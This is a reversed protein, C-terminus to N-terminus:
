KKLFIISEHILNALKMKKLYKFQQSSTVMPRIVDIKEVQFGLKSSILSLFIDTPIVVNGYASNSVIIVTHTNYKTVYYLKEIIKEMDYFYGAIMNIIKKNWLKEIDIKEILENIEKEIKSPVEFIKVRDGSLHSRISLNRYFKLDPYDIIFDGMWLEIKYIECYDFCNLYPPSFIICDISQKQLYKELNVSSDLFVKANPLEKNFKDIYKKTQSELDKIIIDLKTLYFDIVISYKNNSYSLITKNNSILKSVRKRKLGNGAKRYNSVKELISHLNFYLLDKVIEDEDLNLIFEKIMLIDKKIREDFLKDSISLKPMDISPKFSLNKIKNRYFKIKKIVNISYFRTKVKSIFHSFPNTEFGIASNNRYISTILTTGGGCFPDLIKFNETKPIKFKNLLNNILVPSFGEKYEYWRHIPHNLATRYNVVQGNFKQFINSDKEFKYNIKFNSELERYYKIINEKELSQM